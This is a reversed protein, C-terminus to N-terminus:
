SVEKGKEFVLLANSYPLIIIFLNGLATKRRMNAIRM